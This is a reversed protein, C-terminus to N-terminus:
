KKWAQGFVVYGGGSQSADPTLQMQGILADDRGDRDVDGAAAVTGRYLFGEVRALAAASEGELAVLQPFRKRGLLVFGKSPKPCCYIWGGGFLLDDFGDANLDGVGAITATPWKVRFGNTGDLKRIDVTKPFRGETGFLVFSARADHGRAGGATLVLDDAGDGNVDGAAGATRALGLEDYALVGPIAFGDRGDLKNLRLVSPYPGKRGFVVYLSGVEAADGANMWPNGVVIDALGDSNLDGAAAVLVLATEIPDKSGQDVIMRFGNEGDLNAVSFEAPIDGKPRGFVVYPGVAVDAAGDGNVDGLMAVIAGLSGETRSPTAGSIRLATKREPRAPDLRIEKSTRQQGFVVWASLDGVAGVLIDDRGDGNFDGGGSVDSGVMMREAGGVIRVGNAGDLASADVVRPLSERPGGYVVTAFGAKELPPQSGDQGPGLVVDDYGDGNFDGATSASTGLQHRHRNLNNRVTFGERRSLDQLDVVGVIARDAAVAMAPTLSLSAALTAAIVHSVPRAPPTLRGHPVPSVRIM